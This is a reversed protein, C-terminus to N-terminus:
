DSHGTPYCFLRCHPPPPPVEQQFLEETANNRWQNHCMCKIMESNKALYNCFLATHFSNDCHSTMRLSSENKTNPLNIMETVGDHNNSLNEIDKHYWALEWSLSPMWRM